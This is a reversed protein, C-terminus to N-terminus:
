CLYMKNDVVILFVYALAEYKLFIQQNGSVLSVSYRSLLLSQSVFEETSFKCFM